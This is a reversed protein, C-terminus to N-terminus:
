RVSKVDFAYPLPLDSSRKRYLPVRLDFAQQFPVPKRQEMVDPLYVVRKGYRRLMPLSRRGYRGIKEYRPSTERRELDFISYPSHPDNLSDIMQLVENEDVEPYLVTKKSHFLPIEDKKGIHFAPFEKKHFHFPLEKEEVSRSFAFPLAEKRFHFPLNERRFHFPLTDKKMHLFPLADKKMHLFPLTDKKFHFPLEDKKQFIFPLAQSKLYHHVNDELEKKMELKGEKEVSDDKESSLAEKKDNAERGSEQYLRVPLKDEKKTPAGRTLGFLCCVLLFYKVYM